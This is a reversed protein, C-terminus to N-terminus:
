IVYKSKLQNYSKVYHSTFIGTELVFDGLNFNLSSFLM